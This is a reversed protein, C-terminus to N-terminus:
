SRANGMRNKVFRNLMDAQSHLHLNYATHENHGAVCCDITCAPIGNSRDCLKCRRFRAFIGVPTLVMTYFTHKKIIVAWSVIVVCAARAIIIM